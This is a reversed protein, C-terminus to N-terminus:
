SENEGGGIPFMNIVTGGLLSVYEPIHTVTIVLAHKAAEKIFGIMKVANEKDLGGFPEDLLIIDGNYVMARSFSVWQKMGGSLEDPFSSLNKGLGVDTLMKKAIDLTEKKGGLVINVNETATLWPFLCAEQFMYSVKGSKCVEGSESVALGSIINLLTSKGCGSRGVLVYLGTDNFEYNFKDLVPKRGGASNTYSYSINKLELM